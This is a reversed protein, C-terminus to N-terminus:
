YRGYKKMIKDRERHAEEYTCDPHQKFYALDKRQADNYADWYSDSSRRDLFLNAGILIGAGVLIMIVIQM